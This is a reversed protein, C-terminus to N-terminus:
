GRRQACAICYRAFPLADLREESIPQRCVECNGYEGREIRGLAAEVDELLAEQNEAQAINESVGEESETAPHIPANAVNGPPRIDEVISQEIDQVASILRSRMELLRAKHRQAVDTEM